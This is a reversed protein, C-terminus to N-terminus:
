ERNNVQGPICQWMVYHRHRTHAPNMRLRRSELIAAASAAVGLEDDDDTVDADDVTVTVVTALVVGSVVTELAVVDGSAEDICCRTVDLVLFLASALLLLEVSAPLCLSQHWSLDFLQSNSWELQNSRIVIEIVERCYTCPTYITIVRHHHWGRRSSSAPPFGSLPLLDAANRM